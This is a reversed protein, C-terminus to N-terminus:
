NIRAGGEVWRGLLAREEATMGTKNAMPMTEQVVARERIRDALRAIDEPTDFAIGNPAVTFVDDTPWASHCSLCRANIVARAAGFSVGAAGAAGPAAQARKPSALVIVAGLCAAMPALAWAKRPTKGIMAHRACAGAVSLLVLVLWGWGGPSGYTQPFHTSLMIFLVPFTMYSNHMSRRKAAEGLTFDPTEGRQTADIMKQQNPLIVMWVNAVMITGLISGVHIYAARGSLARFLGFMVAALLAFSLVTAPWGIRGLRSRWLVDYVVWSGVLLGVAVLTARAPTITSVAPDVLYIGGTLYYVVALLVIGTVWTLLAEYKFWHLVAPLEGPGIRRKEVQYFGGSHTMWLEGEVGKRPPAPATLSQDLWVFYFSSGIWAIGAALHIVRVVLNIWDLWVSV